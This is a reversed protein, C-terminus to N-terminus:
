KTAPVRVVQLVIATGLWLLGLALFTWSYAGGTAVNAIMLVFAGAMLGVQANLLLRKPRRMFFQWYSMVFAVIFLPMIIFNSVVM